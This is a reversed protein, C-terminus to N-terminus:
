SAELAVDGVSGVLSFICRAPSWKEASAAWPLPQQFEGMVSEWAAVAPNSADAAAKEAPDFREDVETVMVLRNGSRYIEMEVIGAARISDLIEVPVARHHDEYRAILAPDDRLDLLLIQRM